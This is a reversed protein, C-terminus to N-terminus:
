LAYAFLLGETEGKGERRYARSPGWSLCSPLMTSILVSARQVARQLVLSGSTRFLSCPSSSGNSLESKGYYPGSSWGEFGQAKGEHETRAKSTRGQYADCHATGGASNSMLSGNLFAGLLHEKILRQPTCENPARNLRSQSQLIQRVEPQCFAEFPLWGPAWYAELSKSLVRVGFHQM